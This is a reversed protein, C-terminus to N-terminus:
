EVFDFDYDFAISARFWSGDESGDGTQPPDVGQVQVGDWSQGRFVARIQDAYTVALTDGTGSPVFVHIQVTGSERYLNQGPDGISAIDETGALFDLAVWPQYDPVANVNITEVIPASDFNAALRDRIATRVAASSM